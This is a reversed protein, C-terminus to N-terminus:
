GNHPVYQQLAFEVASKALHGTVVDSSSYDEDGDDISCGLYGLLRLIEDHHTITPNFNVLISGTISSAKVMTIGPQQLLM